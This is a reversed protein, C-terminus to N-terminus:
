YMKTTVLHQKNEPINKKSCDGTMKKLRIAGVGKKKRGFIERIYIRETHSNHTKRDTYKDHTPVNSCKNQMGPM